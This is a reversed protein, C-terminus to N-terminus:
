VEWLPVPIQRVRRVHPSQPQELYQHSSPLRVTAAPTPEQMQKTSAPPVARAHKGQVLIVKTACAPLQLPARQLRSLTQRVSHAPTRQLQVSQKHINPHVVTPVHTTEQSQRTSELSV